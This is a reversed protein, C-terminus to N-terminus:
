GVDSTNDGSFHRSIFVLEDDRTKLKENLKENRIALLIDKFMPGPPFGMQKLDEGTVSPKIYRLKVFYHSIARKVSEQRTAAMMYLKLETRIGMLLDCLESNLVPMSRELWYLTKEAAYREKGLITKMRPALELRNFIDESIKSDYGRLIALLYVAWKMVSEELFLLDHWSIVNKVSNLLTIKDPGLQLNPHIVRLLQFDNLRGIAPVPNEEDLIQKIENFVRKGSLKSFFDMKIANEILGVTLRGMNFGFRQEFKIARFARTPDEVFSLNHIVRIAKEKIDKQASFFDILTGFKEPNLQIALTNITFDRRFLDQKISSMEVIPLATPFKYYEMRASAIDIKLHDPLIIVATGFHEHTHVRASNLAAYQKAFAIGNGEVVVDMDENPRYLFLDRVFGGVVYAEIGMERAVVGIGRLLDMMRKSFREIMFNLINRTRAHIIDQFNGAAAALDRSSQRVILNLLDTRSVVGKITGNEVVPLIRQKNDIVKQQIESIDADPSVWAIDTTMYERVPVDDLHHYLAKELVQRTIYGLLSERADPGGNILLANINYRTLLGSAEKCSTDAGTSIAPSSMIDRALRRPRITQYLIELLRQDTQALTHDKITASAAFNHGGGGMQSLITGVDVEPIRSRAVIHIKNEMSAIAFIANLNEMKIMKHVLFAFDPVYHETIISTVVVETGKITYRTASQIMDNLLGVQEPSIERATMSSVMNLNAGRSLLFAAALFDQETTSPFTFSGTDEYLGLCMITAEDASVDIQKERIIEILLTVTAGSIRSFEIHGKIDNPMPPHHDYIHIEIDPHNLLEAFKGIRSPQRTDVLILRNIASFDIHKIDAMNFLYAMSTIFFNRLNKEQSGPFVVLADPYLKQAALMSALADFDANLHTTIVTIGNPNSM